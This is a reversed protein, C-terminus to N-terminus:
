RGRKKAPKPAAQTPAWESARLRAYEEYAVASEVDGRNDIAELASRDLVETEAFEDIEKPQQKM